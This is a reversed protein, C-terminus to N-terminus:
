AEFIRFRQRARDLIDGTLMAGVLESQMDASTNMIESLSEFFAKRDLDDVADQNIYARLQNHNFITEFPLWLLPLPNLFDDVLEALYRTSRQPPLTYELNLVHERYVVHVAMTNVDSWPYAEGSASIAMLTLLPALVYKDSRRSKRNAATVVLCHWSGDSAQWVWPLGGSLEVTAPLPNSHGAPLTILVPDFRLHDSGTIVWEDTTTGVVVASYLCRASRMQDLFPELNEGLVLVQQKLRSQDHVAFAGAPVLSKRSFDAYVSEFESELLATSTLSCGELLQNSLWNDVPITRLQYDIPFGSSLPENEMEALEATSDTQEGIGLHYRGVLDVPDLLFRRLLGITLGVAEVPENEPLPGLPAFDPNYCAASAMDDSTARDTFAPWLRNSRYCSVRQAVSSNVMVDSWANVADATIYAPSDAKLPIRCVKFPLGGLVQQEVFRCLQLLVSCPELVRDKQLDRSVYSLYIKRRVSILIELFLYRNREAPTIDGIRRQQGRLDLMSQPTRGPFRGEELGLVYVIKFPIPRMPMLASVTVGGTLYDGQGGSIGELHDCVFAWLTDTTLTRGPRIRDLDDYRLFHDFARVLSQYVAEEGRMDASIEVFRDLLHFFADRWVQASGPIMKLTNLSNALSEVLRCFPELLAEDGTNIDFYPVIGNFHPQPSGNGSSPSTMIRAMRLRELGQRWSFQGARPNGSDQTAQHEFDHFIGLADAWGIWISLTDPGYGWRQMVCPNRLLDFVQKRSLNGRALDMVALVAQAFVSETRTNSDVLNYAIRGPQRSFVSDVLPKYRSMDSVMVAIDTMCLQADSELNYLISNYVTEVERRIGPCAMMQLSTDQSHPLTADEGDGLTLLGNGIVGLVTDPHPIRSFGAQFDYDTLQCLLRISERGPKGWASLLAHDAPAFLDGAAMEDQSLALNVATKRQIWKKEFPTKIDEWYERSPNLSYIHIDYFRELRSLLQLHFPSIQSLGFFHIRRLRRDPEREGGKAGLVDQAYEGMSVLPRGTSQGLQDKLRMMELYLWKQCDEMATQTSRDDLWGQIMDSRHYEYEQFLRSLEDSLQWCRIELDSRLTRDSGTFYHYVPKLVPVTRDPNMLIFFLLIKLSDRDLLEPEPIPHGALSRLMLWLGNELYQFVVNMFIASQRALTLKIWKSLNMNPVVVVAPDLANGGLNDPALNDGLKDALPMLQNSFYLVIGM